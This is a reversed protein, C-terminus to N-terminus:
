GEIGQQVRFGKKGGDERWYASALKRFHCGHGFRVGDM